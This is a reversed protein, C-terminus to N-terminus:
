SRKIDLNEFEGIAHTREAYKRSYSGNELQAKLDEPIYSRAALPAGSPAVRAVKKDITLLITQLRFTYKMIHNNEEVIKHRVVM